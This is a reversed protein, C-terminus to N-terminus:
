GLVIEIRKNEKGKNETKSIKIKGIEGTRAVHTGGDLQADFGVIDVVRLKDTGKPLLDASLRYLESKKLAEERDLWVTKVERDEEVVRNMEEEIVAKREKGLDSLSLDLRARDAYIQGGTIRANFKQFVVGSLIHLATHHRMHKYRLEWDILGHVKKGELHKPTSVSPSIHHLVKGSDKSAEIVDFSTEEEPLFLKGKDSPQGGGRPYIATQDLVITEPDPIELITADFERLYHDYLYLLDTL